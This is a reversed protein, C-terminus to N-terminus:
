ARPPARPAPQWSHIDHLPPGTSDPRAAPQEPVVSARAPVEAALVAVPLLPQPALAQRQSRADRQILVAVEYTTAAFASGHTKELSPAAPASAQLGITALLLAAWLRLLTLSPLRPLM